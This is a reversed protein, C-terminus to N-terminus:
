QGAVEQFYLPILDGRPRRCTVYDRISDYDVIRYRGGTDNGYDIRVLMEGDDGKIVLLKLQHGGRREGRSDVMIM